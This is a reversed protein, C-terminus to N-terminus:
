GAGSRWPPKTCPIGILSPDIKDLSKRDLGLREMQADLKNAVIMDAKSVIKNMIERGEPTSSDLIISRKGVGHESTYAIMVVPAHQPNTPNVWIVDAGLEAFMRTANVGAVVNAFDIVTFGELPRKAPAKGTPSPLPHSRPIM